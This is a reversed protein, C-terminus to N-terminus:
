LNGGYDLEWIEEIFGFYSAMEGSRDPAQVRVGSNQCKSKKDKDKTYFTFGNIDYAQFTVVSRKPRSSLRRLTEEEVSDGSPLDQNMFWTTFARRHEKLIEDESFDPNNRRM